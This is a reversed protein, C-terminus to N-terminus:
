NHSLLIFELWWATSIIVFKVAGIFTAGMVERGRLGGGGEAGGGEGARVIGDLTTLM